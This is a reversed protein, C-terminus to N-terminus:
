DCKSLFLIVSLLHLSVLLQVVRMCHFPIRIICQILIFCFLLWYLVLLLFQEENCNELMLCLLLNVCSFITFCIPHVIAAGLSIITAMYLVFEPSQFLSAVRICCGVVIFGSIVVTKTTPTELQACYLLPIYSISTAVTVQEFGCLIWLCLIWYPSQDFLIRWVSPPNEVQAPRCLLCQFYEQFVLEVLREHKIISHCYNYMTFCRTLQINTWILHLGLVSALSRWSWLWVLSEMAWLASVVFSDSYEFTECAEFLISHTTPVAYMFITENLVLPLCQNKLIVAWM